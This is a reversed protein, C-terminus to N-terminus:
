WGSERQCARELNAAINRLARVIDTLVTKFSTEEANLHARLEKVAEAAERIKIVANQEPTM